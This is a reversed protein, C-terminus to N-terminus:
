RYRGATTSLEAGARCSLENEYIRWYRRAMLDPSFERAIRRAGDALCSALAADDAMSQLAPVVDRPTAPDVLIACESTLLDTVGDVATAVVPTGLSLAEIMTVPLGEWR